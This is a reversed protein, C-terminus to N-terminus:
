WYQDRTADDYDKYYDPIAHYELFSIPFHLKREVKDKIFASLKKETERAKKVDAIKELKIYDYAFEFVFSKSKVLTDDMPTGFFTYDGEEYMVRPITSMLFARDVDGRKLQGIEANTLKEIHFNNRLYIYSSGLASYKHYFNYERDEMVPLDLEALIKKDLKKFDIIRILLKEVERRYTCQLWIYEEENFREKIAVENVSPIYRYKM